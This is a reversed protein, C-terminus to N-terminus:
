WIDGHDVRECKASYQNKRKIFLFTLVVLKRLAQFCSNGGGINQNQNSLNLHQVPADMNHIGPISKLWRPFVSLILEYLHDQNTVKSCISFKVSNYFYENLTLLHFFIEICFDGM